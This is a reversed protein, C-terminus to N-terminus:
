VQIILYSISYLFVLTKIPPKERAVAEGWGGFLPIGRYYYQEPLPCVIM